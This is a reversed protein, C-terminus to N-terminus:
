YFGDSSPKKILLKYNINIRFLLIFTLFLNVNEPILIKFKIFFVSYLLYNKM